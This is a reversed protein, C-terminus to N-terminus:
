RKTIRATAIITSIVPLATAATVAVSLATVTFLSALATEVVSTGIIGGAVQELDEESLEGTMGAVPMAGTGAASLIRNIEDIDAATIHFGETEAIQLVSDVDSQSMIREAFEKDALMKSLFEGSPGSERLSAASERFLTENVTDIDDEALSIGAGKAAEIVEAKSALTAIKGAFGPDEKIKRIFTEVANNM